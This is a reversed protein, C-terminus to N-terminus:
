VGPAEKKTETLWPHAAEEELQVRIPMLDLYKRALARTNNLELRLKFIEGLLEVADAVSEDMMRESM